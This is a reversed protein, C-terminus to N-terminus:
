VAQSVILTVLFEFQGLVNVFIYEKSSRILPNRNITKSHLWIAIDANRYKPGNWAICKNTITCAETNKETGIKSNM